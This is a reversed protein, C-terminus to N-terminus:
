IEDELEEFEADELMIGKKELAANVCSLTDELLDDLLTELLEDVVGKEREEEEDEFEVRDEESANIRETMEGKKMQNHLDIDVEWTRWVKEDLRVEQILLTDLNEGFTESYGAWETVMKSVKEMVETKSLPKPPLWSGPRRKRTLSDAGLEVNLSSVSNRRHRRRSTLFRGEATDSDANNTATGTTSSHPINSDLVAVREHEWFIDNLAEQTAQFLLLCRCQIHVAEMRIADEVLARSLIPTRKYKPETSTLSLGLRGAGASSTPLTTQVPPPPLLSLLYEVFKHAFTSSSVPLEFEDTSSELIRDVVSSSPTADSDTTSTSDRAAPFAAEAFELPADISTKDVVPLSVPDALEEEIPKEWNEEPIEEAEVFDDPQDESVIGMMPPIVNLPAEPETPKSKKTFDSSMSERLLDALIMDAIEDARAQREALKKESEHLDLPSVEAVGPTEDIGPVEDDDHSEASGTPSTTDSRPGLLLSLAPAPTDSKEDEDQKVSLAEDAQEIEEVSVDKTVKETDLEKVVVQVAASAESSLDADSDFEVDEPIEEEIGESLVDPAVAVDPQLIVEKQPEIITAVGKLSQEGSDSVLDEFDEDGYGGTDCSADDQKLAMHSASPSSAEAASSAPSESKIAEMPSTDSRLDVPASVQALEAPKSTDENAVSAEEASTQSVGDDSLANFDEEIEEDVDDAYDDKPSLIGPPEEPQQLIAVRFASQQEPPKAAEAVPEKAVEVKEPEDQQDMEHKEAVGEAAKKPLDDESDSDPSPNSSEDLEEEIEIDEAVSDSTSVDEVQPANSPPTPKLDEKVLIDNSTSSKQMISSAEEFDDEYSASGSPKDVISESKTAPHFSSIDDEEAANLSPNEAPDETADEISANAIEEAIGISESISESTTALDVSKSLPIPEKFPIAPPSKVTTPKSETAKPLSAENGAVKSPSVAPKSIITQDKSIKKASKVEEIDKDKTTLDELEKSTKDIVTNL